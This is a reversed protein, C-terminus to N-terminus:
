SSCPAWVEDYGIRRELKYGLGDTLYDRLSGSTGHGLKKEIHGRMEIMLMPSNEAITKESGIIAELEAGEIDLVIASCEPLAIDDLIFVPVPGQELKMHHGGSNKENVVLQQPGRSAGLMGRAAYVNERPGVNAMLAAFNPAAPEFTYVQAFHQALRCPWLGCHGGAQVATGRRQEPILRVFESLAELSRVYRKAHRGFGAPWHFGLAQELGNM